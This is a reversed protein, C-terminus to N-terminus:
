TTFEFEVEVTCSGRARRSVAAFVNYIHRFCSHMGTSYMDGVATATEGAVCAGGPWACWRGHMGGVVCVRGHMDGEWVSGVVVHSHFSQCVPTFFNGQRLKTAPPLLLHLGKIEINVVHVYM